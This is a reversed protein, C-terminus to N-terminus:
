YLDDGPVDYMNELRCRYKERGEKGLDIELAVLTQFIFGPHNVSSSQLPPDVVTSSLLPDPFLCSQTFTTMEPTM